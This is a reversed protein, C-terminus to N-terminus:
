GTGPIVRVRSYSRCEEEEEELIAGDRRKEAEERTAQQAGSSRAWAFWGKRALGMKQMAVGPDWPLKQFRQSAGWSLHNASFCASQAKILCKQHTCGCKNGQFHGGKSSLGATRARQSIYMYASELAIWDAKQNVKNCLMSGIHKHYKKPHNAWQVCKWPVPIFKAQM